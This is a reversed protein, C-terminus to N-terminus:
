GNIKKRINEADLSSDIMKSFLTSKDSSLTKPSGFEVVRGSDMVIVKESSVVTILRHAITIVTCNKFETAIVKQIHADTEPDVNATAEDLVLISNRRLIARALCILQRQGLSFNGGDEDVFFDLHQCTDKLQVIDLARWIDTDNYENMPDLNQRITSKFLVPDQPIVGIQRRLCDLPINKTDVNGIKISGEFNYLRFLVGIISSKGAGTRGVIGIKEGSSIKFNLDCLVREEIKFYQLSVNEFKISSGLQFKSKLEATKNSNHYSDSNTGISRLNPSNSDDSEINCFDRIRKICVSQSELEIIQRMAFQFSGQITSSQSLLLGVQGATTSNITYTVLIITLIALYCVLLFDSLITVFGNVVIVYFFAKTHTDQKSRYQDRMRAQAKSARITSLGSITTSIQSYLPARAITELQKMRSVLPTLRRNLLIFCIVLVIVDPAYVINLFITLVLIGALNLFRIVCDSFAVPIVDDIIGLDSSFRSLITGIKTFDFFKMPARIICKLLAKHIRISCRLFAYFMLGTRIFSSVLLSIILFTYLVMIQKSNLSAVFHSLFENTVFGQTVDSVLSLYYDIFQFLIQTVVVMIAFALWLSYSNVMKFIYIMNPLLSSNGMTTEIGQRQDDGCASQINEPRNSEPIAQGSNTNSKKSEKGNSKNNRIEVAEEFAKREYDLKKFVESKVVDEITGFASEKKLGDVVLVKTAFHLFQLQHTVLIVLKNKLFNLLCKEFIHKAVPADVASLPDDLLYIDADRYLSRALNVRAKQGGSLSVGREGVITLDGDVLLEIDKKLCCIDIVDQYRISDFELGFLINDKITGAFMWSEQSAFSINGSISVQGQSIPLEGLIANLITSKGSGVRGIIILLESSKSSFNLNNLGFHSSEVEGNDEDWSINVLKFSIESIENEMKPKSLSSQPSIRYNTPKTNIEPLCLFKSVRKCVVLSEAGNAIGTPFMFTLCARMNTTLGMTVFVIQPTFTKGMAAYVMLGVFSIIKSSTFFLASNTTKLAIIKKLSRVENERYKLVRETFPIEWAYMKIVRMATLLASMLRVREDTHKVTASRYKIFGKGIVSQNAFFALIVIICAFTPLFGIYFKWLITMTILAQLPAVIIYPIYPLALDFRNADSSILTVMQGVTTQRMASQSLRLTKQYLLQGVAVRIQMGLRSSLFYYPQGLVSIFIPLTITYLSLVVIRLYIPQTSKIIATSNKSLLEHNQERIADYEETVVTIWGIVLTNLPVFLCKLILPLLMCVFMRWRFTKWIARAINPQKSKLLEQKWQYELQRTLKDAEDDKSPGDLDDIILDKRSSIKYLDAVYAFSYKKFFNSADFRSKKTDILKQNDDNQDGDEEFEKHGNVLM